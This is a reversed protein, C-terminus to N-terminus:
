CPTKLRSYFHCMHVRTNTLNSSVAGMYLISRWWKKNIILPNIQHQDASSKLTLSIICFLQNCVHKAECTDLDSFWDSIICSCKWHKDALTCSSSYTLVDRYDTRNHQIYQLQESSHTSSTPSWINKQTKTGDFHRIRKSPLFDSIVPAESKM